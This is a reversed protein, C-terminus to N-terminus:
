VHRKRQSLCDDNKRDENAGCRVVCVALHCHSLGFLLIKTSRLGNLESM